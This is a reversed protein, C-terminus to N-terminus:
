YSAPEQGPERSEAVLSMIEDREIARTLWLSALYVAASGLVLVALPLRSFLGLFLAMVAGSLLISWVRRIEPRYGVHKFALFAACGVVLMETFVSTAAAGLYSYKPILALNLGLNLVAAVALAVMLKKQLNGVILISNFFHGFFIFALAFVLVRLAQASEAFGAGGILTVIQPALLFGGVVLPVVFILFVKFTKNAVIEFKHRESFIFRSFLPLVLGAVMAPFFTLNEIVKYAVNYVGVEASSRLVSLLITDMKFYAFTIVAAIGVPLSHRLFEKWYAWDIRLTFAVYRRSLRFIALANFSMYALLSLVVATFGLDQRVALVIVGLQIVKGVLEITAVRDMVLHKQFIGNLVMSTSSFVFAAAAIVIGVKLEPSYPLFFILLPTLIFVLLSTILRLAVINGMIKAEDAATRSIERAAVTQLGLDAVSNFFSFFALMTAYNGFGDKGLYRTIFGIAVLALATSAIKAFANFVVNYALKRALAM